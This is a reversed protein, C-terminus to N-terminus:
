QMCVRVEDETQSVIVEGAESFGYARRTIEESLRGQELVTLGQLVSRDQTHEALLELTATKIQIESTGPPLVLCHEEAWLAGVMASLAASLYIVVLAYRKNM